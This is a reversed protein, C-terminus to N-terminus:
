EAIFRDSQSVIALPRARKRGGGIQPTGGAVKGKAVWMRLAQVTIKHPNGKSLEKDFRAANDAPRFGPQRMKKESIALRYAKTAKKHM